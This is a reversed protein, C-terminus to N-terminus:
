RVLFSVVVLATVAWRVRDFAVPHKQKTHQWLWALAFLAALFVAVLLAASPLDLAHHFRQGLGRAGGTGYIVFLHAVYLVLTQSGVIQLGRLVKAEERGAFLGGLVCLGALVSVVVGLRTITWWSNAKWFSHEPFPDWATLADGCVILVAGLAGLAVALRLWGEHRARLHRVLAAVLIGGFLFAAWPFLPFISGYARNVWAGFFMPWSSVDAADTFPGALVSLVFLAGITALYARRTRCVLVLAQAVALVVGIHQLADIRLIVSQREPPLAALWRVGIVGMHMVYGLGVLIAYREFRKFVPAGLKTHQDWRGLTTIGFACGAAFLFVPATFGHVYGHWRYWYQSRVTEDVVEYFTHGQVMLVVALFRLLDLALWRKSKTAAKAEARERPLAPALTHAADKM